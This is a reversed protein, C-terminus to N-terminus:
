TELIPSLLHRTGGGLSLFGNSISVKGISLEMGVTSSIPHNTRLSRRCMNPPDDPMLAFLIWAYNSSAVLSSLVSVYFHYLTTSMMCDSKMSPFIVTSHAQFVATRMGLPTPSETPNPSHLDYMLRYWSLHIKPHPQRYIKVILQM